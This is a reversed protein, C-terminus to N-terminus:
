QIYFSLYKIAVTTEDSDHLLHCDIVVTKIATTAMTLMAMATAMVCFLWRKRERRGNRDNDVFERQMKM